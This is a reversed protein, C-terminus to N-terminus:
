TRYLLLYCNQHDTENNQEFFILASM